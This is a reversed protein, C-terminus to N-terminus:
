TQDLSSLIILNPVWTSRFTYGVFCMRACKRTRSCAVYFVRPLFRECAITPYTFLIVRELSATIYQLGLFDFLSALYYGCVGLLMIKWWYIKLLPKADINKQYYTLGIVLYFPLAFLMRLALLSVSDVEHQYALKVLVAKTSFLFASALVILAGTFYNNDKM